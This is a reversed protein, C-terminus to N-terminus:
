SHLRQLLEDLRLQVRDRHESDLHLRFLAHRIGGYTSVAREQARVVALHDGSGAVQDLERVALEIELMLPAIEAEPNM